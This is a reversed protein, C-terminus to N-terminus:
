RDFGCVEVVAPDVGSGGVDGKEGKGDSQKRATDTRLPGSM